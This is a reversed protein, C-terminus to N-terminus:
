AIAPHIPILVEPQRGEGGPVSSADLLLVFITSVFLLRRLLPDGRSVAGVLVDM